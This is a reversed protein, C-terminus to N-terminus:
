YEEDLIGILYGGPDICLVQTLFFFSSVSTSCQLRFITHICLYGFILVTHMHVCTTHMQM